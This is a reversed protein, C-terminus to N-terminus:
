GALSLACKDEKEPSGGSDRGPAGLERSEVLNECPRVNEIEGASHSTTPCPYHKEEFLM